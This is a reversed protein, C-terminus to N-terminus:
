ASSATWEIRLSLVRWSTVLAWGVHAMMMHITCHLNLATVLHAMHGATASVLVNRFTVSRNRQTRGRGSGTGTGRVTASIRAVSLVILRTTLSLAARDHVPFGTVDNDSLASVKVNQPVPSEYDDHM